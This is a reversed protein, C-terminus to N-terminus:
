HCSCIFYKVNIDAGYLHIRYKKLGNPLNTIMHALSDDWSASIQISIMCTPFSVLNGVQAYSGELYVDLHELQTPLNGIVCDFTGKITLVKITDPLHSIIMKGPSLPREIENRRHLCQHMIITLNELKPPLKGISVFRNANISLEKLSSPLKVNSFKGIVKNDDLNLKLVELKKPLRLKRFNVLEGRRQFDLKLYKISNRARYNLVNTLDHIDDTSIHYYMIDESKMGSHIQVWSRRKFWERACKSLTKSVRTFAELDEYRLDSGYHTLFSILALTSSSM